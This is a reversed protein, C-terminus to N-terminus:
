QIIPHKSGEMGSSHFFTYDRVDADLSCRIIGSSNGKLKLVTCGKDGQYIDENASELLPCSPDANTRRLPDISLCPLRMDCESPTNCPYTRLTPRM